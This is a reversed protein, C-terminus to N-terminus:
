EAMEAQGRAGDGGGDLAAERGLRCWFAEGAPPLPNPSPHGLMVDWCGRQVLENWENCFVWLSPLMDHSHFDGDVPEAADPPQHQPGDDLAPPGVDLGNGDVIEAADLGVRVQEAVVAHM